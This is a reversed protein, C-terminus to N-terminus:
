FSKVFRVYFPTKENEIAKREYKTSIFDAPRKLDEGICEIGAVQASNQLIEDMYDEFDTAIVLDGGHRLKQVLFKMFDVTLLRRKHHKKKRWPDPFLVYFRDVSENTFSDLLFRADDRFIRVNNLHNDNILRLANAVGNEFPDCGIFAVDPNQIAADSLHEGMGFGIEVFLKSFNHDFLALPDAVYCDHIGYTDYLQMSSKQLNSLKRSRRRGFSKIVSTRDINM